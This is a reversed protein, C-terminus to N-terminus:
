LLQSELRHKRRTKDKPLKFDSRRLAKRIADLDDKNSLANIWRLTRDFDGDFIISDYELPVSLLQGAVLGALTSYRYEEAYKCIGARLPNQYIYKYTNLFYQHSGLRCRFFRGSWTLNERRSAHTLERSTQNQFYAMAASLNAKPASVILHYHNNMLVFSHVRLDFAHKVLYLQNTMLIWVEDM